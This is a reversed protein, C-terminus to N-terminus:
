SGELNYNLSMVTVTGEPTTATMKLSGSIALEGATATTNPNRILFSIANGNFVLPNMSGISNPVTFSTNGVLTGGDATVQITTGAPLIQGYPEGFDAFSLEFSEIGDERIDLPACDPEIDNSNLGRDTTAYVCRNGIHNLLPNPGGPQTNSVLTMRADSGSMVMVIAKRVHISKATGTACLLGQCQPGNFLEDRDDFTQSNDFDIFKEGEEHVDNENDDRWAEAMDWVGEARARVRGFGSEAYDHFVGGDDDDFTNSGNTDYFTEHGVATALITIRHNEVRPEGSTWKVSCAGNATNCSPVISGGETTFNVTTGNPVPNNFADSLQATVVVETGNYSDAEPNFTVAGLTFSDQDAMGTNVSLLDSQTQIIQNNAATVSATVRVATPVNGANVKTTVFGLSNTIATAPTITLNGVSTNLSFTVAQQSLPNGLAGKVLFTLTSTEQQGLGGTGKLVISQPSSSIFEISGINESAINVTQVLAKTQNNVTVTAQIVDQGGGCSLDVFTTNAVGNVTFVGSGITAKKSEVCSSTFNVQSPLMIRQNNEDVMAMSIGLSAGASINIAGSTDVAISSGLLNEVFQNNSDFHGLKIVEDTINIASSIVEYNVRALIDVNNITVEALAAAAGLNADSSSLNVEAIGNQDTLGTEVNTTGLEVTFKVLQNLIPLNNADTVLARLQVVENSKFRNVTIGNRLLSLYIRSTAIPSPPVPALLEFNYKSIVDGFTATITGAGLTTSPSIKATAYGQEDTLIRASTLTGLTTSLTIIEAKVPTDSADVLRVSVTIEDSNPFSDSDLQLPSSLMVELHKVSLAATSDPPSEKCGAFVFLAFALFIGVCAPRRFVSM